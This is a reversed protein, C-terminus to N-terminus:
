LFQDMKRNQGNVDMTTYPDADSPILGPSNLHGSPMPISRDLFLIKTASVPLLLICSNELPPLNTLDHAVKPDTSTLAKLV